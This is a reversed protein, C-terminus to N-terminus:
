QKVHICKVPCADAADQNCGVEEVEKIYNKTGPDLKSGLLKSKGDDQVQWNKPCLAACSGCGICKDREFIIKAM